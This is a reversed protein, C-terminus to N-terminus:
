SCTPGCTLGRHMGGALWPAQENVYRDYEIGLPDLAIPALLNVVPGLPGAGLLSPSGAAAGFARGARGKSEAYKAWGQALKRAEALHQPNNADAAFYQVLIRRSEKFGPDRSVPLWEKDRYKEYRARLEAESPTQKVQDLYKDAPVPLMLVKLTTRQDRYFNLFEDPTVAAPSSSAGTLSRYFRVGPENGLLVGQAMVVRFEERLAEILDRVPM